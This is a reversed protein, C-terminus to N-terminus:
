DTKHLSHQKIIHVIDFLLLHTKALVLSTLVVMAFFTHSWCTRLDFCGSLDKKQRQRFKCGLPANGFVVAAPPM